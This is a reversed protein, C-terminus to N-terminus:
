DKIEEFDIYDQKTAPTKSSTTRPPQQVSQESQFFADQQKQIDKMQSRIQSTAKSVPIIFEFILKYLFYFLLSYALFKFM